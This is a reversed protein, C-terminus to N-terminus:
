EILRKEKLQRHLETEGHHKSLFEPELELVKRWMKVAEQEDGKMLLIEGKSDYLNAEEPMLSIARDISEIAKDYDGAKAYEYAKANCGTALYPASM